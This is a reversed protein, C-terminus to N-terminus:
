FNIPLHSSPSYPRVCCSGVLYPSRPFCCSPLFNTLMKLLLLLNYLVALLRVCCTAHPRQSSPRAQGCLIWPSGPMVRLHCRCVSCWCGPSTRRRCTVRRPGPWSVCEWLHFWSSSFTLLLQRSSFGNEFALICYFIIITHPSTPASALHRTVWLSGLINHGDCLAPWADPCTMSLTHVETLDTKKKKQIPKYKLRNQITRTWMSFM